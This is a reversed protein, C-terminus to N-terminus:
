RWRWTMPVGTVCRPRVSSRSCGSRRPRRTLLLAGLVTGSGGFQDTGGLIVAAIATLEM